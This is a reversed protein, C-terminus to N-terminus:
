ERGIRADATVVDGKADFLRGNKVASNVIAQQDAPLTPTFPNLTGNLVAARIVGDDVYGGILDRTTDVHNWSVGTNYDWDAITGELSAVFRQQKSENLESRPGAPVSRWRVRIPQTPDWVTGAPPAPTVGRGPFFPSSPDMSLAG